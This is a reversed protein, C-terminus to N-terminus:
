IFREFNDQTANFTEDGCTDASIRKLEARLEEIQLAQKRNRDQSLKVLEIAEELAADPGISRLRFGGDRHILILLAVIKEAAVEIDTPSM